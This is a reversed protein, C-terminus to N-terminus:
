YKVTCKMLLNNEDRSINYKDILEYTKSGKCYTQGNSCQYCKSCSSLLLITVSIFLTNKM